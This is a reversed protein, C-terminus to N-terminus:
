FVFFLPSLTNKLVKQMKCTLYSSVSGLGTPWPHRAGKIKLILSLNTKTVLCVTCASLGISSLKDKAIELRIIGAKM